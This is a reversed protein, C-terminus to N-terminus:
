TEHARLHTYSVADIYNKYWNENCYVMPTYGYRRIEDCFAKAIAGLQAKSLDTQSSDELDIAVPYSITYGKLESVVYRADSVADSVNRAQSYIHVLLCVLKIQM